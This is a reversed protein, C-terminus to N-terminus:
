AGCLRRRANFPVCRVITTPETTRPLSPGFSRSVSSSLRRMEFAIPFRCLSVLEHLRECVGLWAGSGGEVAFGQRRWLECGSHQRCAVMVSALLTRFTRTKSEPAGPLLATSSWPASPSPRSHILVTKDQSPNAKYGITGRPLNSKGSVGIRYAHRAPRHEAGM